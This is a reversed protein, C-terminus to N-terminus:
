QGSLFRHLQLTCGQLGSFQAKTINRVVESERPDAVVSCVPYKQPKPTDWPRFGHVLEVFRNHEERSANRQNLKFELFQWNRDISNHEKEWTRRAVECPGCGSTSFFVVTLRARNLNQWFVRETTVRKFRPPPNNGRFHIDGSVDEYQLEGSTRVQGNSSCASCLVLLFLILKKM